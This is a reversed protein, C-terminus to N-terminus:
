KLNAYLFMLGFPLIIWLLFSLVLDKLLKYQRTFLFYCLLVINIIIILPFLVYMYVYIFGEQLDFKKILFLLLLYSLVVIPTLMKINRHVRKIM